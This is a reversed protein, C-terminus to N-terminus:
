KDKVQPLQSVLIQLSIVNKNKQEVAGIFLQAVNYMAQVNKRRAESLTNQFLLKEPSIPDVYIAEKSARRGHTHHTVANIRHLFSVGDRIEGNMM